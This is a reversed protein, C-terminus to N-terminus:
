PIKKQALKKKKMKSALNSRTKRQSHAVGTYQAGGGLGRGMKELHGGGREEVSALKALRWGPWGIM